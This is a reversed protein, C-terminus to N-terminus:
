GAVDRIRIPEPEPTPRPDGRRLEYEFGRGCPYEVERLFSMGLRRMVAISALNPEDAGAIIRVIRGIALSHVIVTWSMCTALGRGWLEPDLAWTIEAMDGQDTEELRVCGAISRDDETLIWLGLGEAAASSDSTEIWQEAVEQSPPVGDALYHYVDPQGLFAHFPGADRPVTRRLWWKERVTGQESM